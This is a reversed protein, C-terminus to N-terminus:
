PRVLVLSGAHDNATITEVREPAALSFGVVADV